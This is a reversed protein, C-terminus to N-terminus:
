VHNLWSVFLVSVHLFINGISRPLFVKDIGLTQTFLSLVSFIGKCSVYEGYWSKFHCKNECIFFSKILLVFQDSYDLINSVRSDLRVLVDSM